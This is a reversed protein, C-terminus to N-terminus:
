KTHLKQQHGTFVTGLIGSMVRDISFSIYTRILHQKMLDAPTLEEPLHGYNWLVVSKDFMRMLIAPGSYLKHVIANYILERLSNEPIELEEIRQMGEYRIPSILYRFVPSVDSGGRNTQLFRRHFSRWGDGLPLTSRRVIPLPESTKPVLATLFANQEWILGKLPFVSRCAKAKDRPRHCEPQRVRRAEDRGCPLCYGLAM